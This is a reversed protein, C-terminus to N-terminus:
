ALRLQMPQLTRNFPNLVVGLIELTVVGLLPEDGEEGLIVPTHFDENLIEIRCESVGREIKTGDALTFTLTKKQELGLKEWVEKPLLTYNAGSDILFDVSESVDNKGTLKGEVYTLGM